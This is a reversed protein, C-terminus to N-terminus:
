DDDSVGTVVNLVVGGEHQVTQKDGYRQPFWKALLKLRFEARNKLWAVHASDLKGDQGTALPFTELIELAEEAIADAGDERARTFRRKAEENQNLWDYVAHFSPAGEQRCYERLTKGQAVWCIVEELIDLKRKIEDTEPLKTQSKKGASQPKRADKTAASKPSSM